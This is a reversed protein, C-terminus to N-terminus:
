RRMKAMIPTITRRRTTREKSEPIRGATELANRTLRAITAWDKAAILKREVMWSGGVAAVSPRELYGRMNSLDIGGTPLFQVGTHAYPGELAKLMNVGGAAEAPFFKLIRCNLALAKDVESPTMVGPFMVIGAKDAAMIVNENLGPSLAYTAGADAARQLQDPGLITGAGLLIEPFHRAIRRISGEAAATRFTVEMIDLGAKLLTAALPEAQEEHELVVVPVIRKGTIRNLMTELVDGM